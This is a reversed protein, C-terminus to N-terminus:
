NIKDWWVRVDSNDGGMATVANALNEPNLSQLYLPYPIRRPFTRESPIGSGKALVPYGTRRKDFWSQYDVFFSAYYKQLIIQELQKETPQSADFAIKEHTLFGSPLAVNWHNMSAVIGKNYHEAPTGGTSFGRLALEAKIFEVEAYTMIVGLQPLTKLKDSYNSHEDVNYEQGVPYGSEIGKYVAQGDVTITRAWEGLRPDNTENLTELFFKTFYQGDRWDLTRANYFPNHYPFADTFRFIAEEKNSGILPRGIPDELIERLQATVNLEQDRNILRLLARLKLSNALRRWNNMQDASLQGQYIVDGGYTLGANADVLNNAEDLWKLIETYVVQQSDFKPTFNGQMGQTAELCPIDGYLDTLISFVYAKLVLAIAKYNDQDLRDSIQYLDEIDLLRQYYNTWIGDRPGIFWRMVSNLDTSARPAHVQMLEHNFGKSDGMKGAVIRYQLQGLLVGPTSEKPRNPDENMREFQKECSSLLLLTFLLIGLKGIPFLASLSKKNKM